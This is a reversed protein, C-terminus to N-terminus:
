PEGAELCRVLADLLAGPRLPKELSACVDPSGLRERFAAPLGSVIVTRRLLRPARSRLYEIVALGDLGPMVLDLVIADIGGAVIAEVAARGDNAVNAKWGAAEVIAKVASASADDDDAILVIPESAPQPAPERAVFALVARVLDDIEVPKRFFRPMLEPAARMVTQESMGTVLFVREILAPREQELYNLVGFGSLGHRLVLDLIIADYSRTRLFNIASYGDAAYDVDIGVEEFPPRLALEMVADDEIILVAQM